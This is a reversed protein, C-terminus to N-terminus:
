GRSSCSRPSRSRPRAPSRPSWTATRPRSSGSPAAARRWSGSCSAPRSSRLSCRRRTAGDPGFLAAELAAAPELEGGRRGPERLSVLAPAPASPPASARLRLRNEPMEVLYVQCAAAESLSAARSAVAPLLAELTEARAITEGLQSLGDLVGLRRRAEEYLRANEVAGAVLSAAGFLVESEERSFERPRHTHLSIAGIAAGDHGLLPVAVM